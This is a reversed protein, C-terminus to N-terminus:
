KSTERIGRPKVSENRECSAVLRREVAGDFASRVAVHRPQAVVPREVVAEGVAHLHGLGALRVLEDDHVAPRLVAALVRGPRRVALAVDGTRGGEDDM